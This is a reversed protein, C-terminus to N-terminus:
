AEDGDEAPENALEKTPPPLSDTCQAALVARVVRRMRDQHPENSLTLYAKHAVGVLEDETM